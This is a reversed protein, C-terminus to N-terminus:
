QEVVFGARLKRLVLEVGAAFHAEGDTRPVAPLRGHTDKELSAYAEPSLRNLVRPAPTAPKNM